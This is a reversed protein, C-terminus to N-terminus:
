VFFGLALLVILLVVALIGMSRLDKLVYSYQTRLEDESVERTPNALLEAVDTSSLEHKKEGGATKVKRRLVKRKAREAHREAEKQVKAAEELSVSDADMDTGTDETVIDDDDSELQEVRELTQKPINPTTNKKKKKGKAM